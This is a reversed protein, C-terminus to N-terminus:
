RSGWEFEVGAGLGFEISPLVNDNYNIPGNTLFVGVRNAGEISGDNYIRTSDPAVSEMAGSQNLGLSDVFDKDDIQVQEYGVVTNDRYIIVQLYADFGAEDHPLNEYLYAKHIVYGARITRSEGEYSLEIATRIINIQRTVTRGGDLEITISVPTVTEVSLPPLMVTAVGDKIVHPAGTLSTIGGAVKPGTARLDVTRNGFFISVNGVPNSTVIAQDIVDLGFSYAMQMDADAEVNILNQSILEIAVNFEESLDLNTLHIGAKGYDAFEEKVFIKKVYEDEGVEEGYVTHNIQDINNFGQLNMDVLQRTGDVCPAGEVDPIIMGGANKCAKARFTVYGSTWDDPIFVFGEPSADVGDVVNQFYATISLRPPGGPGEPGEPGGPGEGGGPDGIPYIYQSGAAVFVSAEDVGHQPATGLPVVVTVALESHEPDGVQLTKESGGIEIATHTDSKANVSLQSRDEGIITLNGEVKLAVDAVTEGEVSTIYNNNGVLDITLDGDAYVSQIMANTLSLTHSDVDYAINGIGHEGIYGDASTYITTGNVEVTNPVAAFSSTRSLVGIVGLVILLFVGM